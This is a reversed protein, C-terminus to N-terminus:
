QSERKLYFKTLYIHYISLHLHQCALLAVVHLTALYVITLISTDILMTPIACVTNIPQFIYRIVLSDKFSLLAVVNAACRRGREQAVELVVRNTKYDVILHTPICLLTRVLCNKYKCNHPSSMAYQTTEHLVTRDTFRILRFTAITWRNGRSSVLMNFALSELQVVAHQDDFRLM